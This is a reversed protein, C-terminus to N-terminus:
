AHSEGVMAGGFLFFQLIICEIRETGIGNGSRHNRGSVLLRVFSRFCGICSDRWIPSLTPVSVSSPHSAVESDVQHRLGCSIRQSLNEAFIRNIIAAFAGPKEGSKSM